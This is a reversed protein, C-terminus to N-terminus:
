SFSHKQFVISNNCLVAHHGVVFFCLMHSCCFLFLEEVWRSPWTRHCASSSRPLGRCEVTTVSTTSLWCYPVLSLWLAAENRLTCCPTSPPPCNNYTPATAQLSSPYFQSNSCFYALRPMVLPLVHMWTMSQCRVCCFNFYLLFWEGLDDAYILAGRDTGFFFSPTQNSLPKEKVAVKAPAANFSSIFFHRLIPYSSLKRLLIHYSRNSCLFSAWLRRIM